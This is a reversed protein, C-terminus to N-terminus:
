RGLEFLFRISKYNLFSTLHSKFIFDIYYCTSITSDSFDAGLTQAFNNINDPKPEEHIRFPIPVGKDSLHKAIVENNKLMFEEIMQHTIDYEVKKFAKPVGSKDLIMKSDALALDICGRLKRGKKLILAM